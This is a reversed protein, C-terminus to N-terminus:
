RLLCVCLAVILCVCVCARVGGRSQGASSQSSTTGVSEIGAGEVVEKLMMMCSGMRDEDDMAKSSPALDYVNFRLKRAVTSDYTLKFHKRFEPDRPKSCKDSQAIYTLKETTDDRDFMCVIHNNHKSPLGRCKISLDVSCKFGQANALSPIDEPSVQQTGPDMEELQEADNEIKIRSGLEAYSGAQFIKPRPNLCKLLSAIGFAYTDSDRENWSQLHLSQTTAIISFCHNNPALAAEDKKFVSSQKGLVISQISDCRLSRSPSINRADAKCWHLWLLPRGPAMMISPDKRLFLAVYFPKHAGSTFRIFNRGSEFLKELKSLVDNLDVQDASASASSSAKAPSAPTSVPKSAAPAASVRKLSGHSGGLQAARVIDAPQAKEIKVLRPAKAVSAVVATSPHWSAMRGLTQLQFSLLAFLFTDRFQVSTSELSLSAGSSPVLTFLCDEAPLVGRVNLVASFAPSSESGGYVHELNALEMRGATAAVDVGDEPAADRWALSPHSGDPNTVLQLFINRCPKGGAGAGESSSYATFYVGACLMRHAKAVVSSPVSAPLSPVALSALSASGNSSSASSSADDEAPAAALGPRTSVRLMLLRQEAAVAEAGAADDKWAGLTLNIGESDAAILLAKFGVAAGGLFPSPKQKANVGPAKPAVSSELFPRVVKALARPAALGDPGLNLLDLLRPRDLLLFRMEFGAEAEDVGLSAIEQTLEEDSVVLTSSASLGSAAGSGILDLMALSRFLGTARSRYWVSLLPTEKSSNGGAGLDISVNFYSALINPAIFNILRTYLFSTPGAATATNTPAASSSSASSASAPFDVMPIQFSITISADNAVLAEQLRPEEPHLLPLTVSVLNGAGQGAGRCNQLLEELNFIALGLYTSEDITESEAVDYLRIVYHARARRLRPNPSRDLQFQAKWAPNNSSAVVETQAKLEYIGSHTTGAGGAAGTDFHTASDDLQFLAALTTSEALWSSSPLNTARVSMSVRSATSATFIQSPPDSRTPAPAGSPSSVQVATPEPSPRRAGLTAYLSHHVADQESANWSEITARAALLQLAASTADANRGAANGAGNSRPSELPVSRPSSLPVVSDTGDMRLGKLGAAGLAATERRLLDASDSM